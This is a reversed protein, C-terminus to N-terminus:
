RNKIIICLNKRQLSVLVIIVVIVVVVSSVVFILLIFIFFINLYILIIDIFRYFCKNQIQSLYDEKEKITNFVIFATGCFNESPNEKSSEILENMKKENEEKEKKIVELSETNKCCFCTYSYYDRKDDKMGKENNKEIMDQDFEIRQIKEELEELKKQLKIIENLKFCLNISNIDFYQPSESGNKQFIKIELFKKFIDFQTMNEGPKFGLIDIYIKNQNKSEEQTIYELNKNFFKYINNLNTLLIAYDNITCVNYNAVNSKNYLFFISVLYLVFINILLLNFNQIIKTGIMLYYNGM